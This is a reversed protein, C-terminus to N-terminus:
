VTHFLCLVLLVSSVDVICAEEVIMEQPLPIDLAKDERFFVDLVEPEGSDEVTQIVAQRLTVKIVSFSPITYEYVYGYKLACVRVVDPRPTSSRPQDQLQSCDNDSSDSYCDEAQAM